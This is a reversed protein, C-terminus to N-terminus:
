IVECIAAVARRTAQGDCASYAEAVAAARLARAEDPDWWAEFALRVLDSPEDCQLGPVHSWFRLGHEVDRRYWPANLCLVPRDLSAFEYLLSTNDGIIMDARAFLREAIPEWEMGITEAWHRMGRHARPHAHALVKIGESRAADVFGQFSRMFHSWASRTEPILGCDWHWTVGITDALGGRSRGHFLDLKPCGVEAVVTNPYAARWAAGAHPGPVIFLIAAGLGAGGGYSGHGASKPDGPYSQGAGHEVYLLRRQCVRQADSLGACIVMHSLDDSRALKPGWWSDSRTSWARGKIEDPLANWIPWAHDAYHSQGCYLDIM